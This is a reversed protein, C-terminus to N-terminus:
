SLLPTHRLLRDRDGAPPRARPRRRAVPQSPRARGGARFPHGQLARERARRDRRHNGLHHQRGDVAVVDHVAAAAPAHDAQQPGARRPAARRVPRQDPCPSPGVERGRHRDRQAPQPDQRRLHVPRPRGVPGPARSGLQRRVRLPRIRVLPPLPDGRLDLRAAAAQDRAAPDRGRRERQRRVVPQPRSRRGLERPAGDVRPGVVLPDPGAGADALPAQHSAHFTLFAAGAAKMFARRNLGHILLRSEKGTRFGNMCGRSELAGASAQPHARAYRAWGGSAAVVAVVPLPADQVRRQGRSGQRHRAPRLQRQAVSAAERGGEGIPGQRREQSRHGQVQVCGSGDLCSIKIRLTKGVKYTRAKPSTVRARARDQRRSAVPPKPPRPTPPVVTGPRGPEHRRLRRDHRSDSAGTSM